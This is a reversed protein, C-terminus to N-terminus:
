HTNKMKCVFASMKCFSLTVRQNNEYMNWLSLAITDTLRDSILHILLINLHQRQKM